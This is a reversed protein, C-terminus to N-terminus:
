STAEQEALQVWPGVAVTREEIRWNRRGFLGKEANRLRSEAETRSTPDCLPLEFTEVRAGERVDYAVRYEVRVMPAEVTSREAVEPM